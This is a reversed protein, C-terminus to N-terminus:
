PIATAFANMLATVRADLLAPDLSEGISYFSLRGGFFAGPVNTGSNRAFVLVNGNHPAQSAIAVTENTGDARAIYNSSSARSAGVLGLSASTKSHNFGNGNRNRFTVSFPSTTAPGIQSSGTSAAGAGIYTGGAGAPPAVTVYTAQHHSNQPDANNNRNSDLYNDTANGRLGTKRNYNWGGETGFRTPAAGVLPVLAGALTRAGAPICSAKIANWIGDQKCGVVFANIATRVGTELAQGDATEVASIYAQADPDLGAFRYPNIFIVSM